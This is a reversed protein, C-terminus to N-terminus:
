RDARRGPLGNRPQQPSSITHPHHSGLVRERDTLARELLPIAEGTRGAAQFALALNSRTTLTDPYDPGLIRERDTLTREFLPIAKATQGAARYAYALNNRTTLTGPHDPGLSDCIREAWTTWRDLNVQPAPDSRAALDAALEM